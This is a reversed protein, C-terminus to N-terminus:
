RAPDEYDTCGGSQYAGVQDVKICLSTGAPTTFDNDASFRQSALDSWAHVHVRVEGGGGYYRWHWLTFEPDYESWEYVTAGSADVLTAWANYHVRQSVIMRTNEIKVFPCTPADRCNFAQAPSTGVAATIGAGALLTLSAAWPGLRRRGARATRRFTDAVRPTM